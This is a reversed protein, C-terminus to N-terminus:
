YNFEPDNNYLKQVKTRLKPNQIANIGGTVGGEYDTVNGDSYLSAQGKIFDYRTPAHTHYRYKSYTIYLLPVLVFTGVIVFVVSNITVDSM